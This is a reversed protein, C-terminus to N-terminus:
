RVKSAEDRGRRNINNRVLIKCLEKMQSDDLYIEADVWRGKLDKTLKATIRSYMNSGEMLMKGLEKNNVYVIQKM